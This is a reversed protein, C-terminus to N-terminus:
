KVRNVTEIKIINQTTYDDINKTQFSNISLKVDKSEFEIKMEELKTEHNAYCEQLMSYKRFFRRNKVDSTEDIIVERDYNETFSEDRPEEMVRAACNSFDSYEM